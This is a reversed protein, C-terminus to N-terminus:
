SSSRGRASGTSRPSRRSRPASGVGSAEPHDGASTTRSRIMTGDAVADQLVGVTLGAFFEAPDLDPDDRQLVVLALAAMTDEFDALDAFHERIIRRWRHKETISLTRVDLYMPRGNLEVEVGYVVDNAKAPKAPQPPNSRNPVPM